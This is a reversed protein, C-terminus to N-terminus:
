YTDFTKQLEKFIRYRTNRSQNLIIIFPRNEKTPSKFYGALSYVGTLTGTKAKPAQPDKGFTKLLNAHPAFAEAIKLMAKITIKNKRSLGSGEELIFDRKKIKLQQNLFRRIEAVGNKIKAPEGHKKLAIALVIQNAIFNNSFKMMGTVVEALSRSSIHTHLPTSNLPRTGRQPTKSFKAGEQTFIEAILEGTYRLSNGPQRSLNIRHKGPPLAAGREKAFPTLPTQPEASTVRGKADVAVYFTNFNAVLAGLRADYPNLSASAGDVELDRPIATDDLLLRNWPKNFIGKKKLAQAMLRWEESVLYPDGYGRIVLNNRGDDYVETAFRFGAGLTHFATLATALKIISAPVYKGSGQIFLPKKGDSVAVGGSHIWRPLKKKLAKHRTNEGAAFLGETPSLLLVLILLIFFPLRNIKSM